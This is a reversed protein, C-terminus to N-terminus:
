SSPVPPWPVRKDPDLPSMLGAGNGDPDEVIAYRAGWFADYPSQQGKYGAATMHAYLDDVAQRTPVAFNFVVAGGGPERAGANWTRASGLSDFEISMTDSLRVDVHHAAWEGPPNDITLGLQRYFALTAEMDAVVLNVQNFVPPM